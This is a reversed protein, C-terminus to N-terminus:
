ARGNGQSQDQGLWGELKVLAGTWGHRHADRAAADFFQEHMLVLECGEADPEIRVTVRSQREPTSRWAWSFVLKRHPVLELYTGSVDHTEGDAAHMTVRFRGGVRLDVEALPVAIIEDPGFWRKLAQPDTWARWVKDPSVRYHRRLTLSPREKETGPHAPNAM